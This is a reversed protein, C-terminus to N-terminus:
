GGYPRTIIELYHGDLDNWYVGRGGDHRNIEGPQRHAPDAWYPLQLAQIRAFIQDFEEDGVLFAYHEVVLPDDGVAIFDLTVRNDLAVGYFPGFRVPAARGLIEALFSASAQPDRAHVITHNLEIPM